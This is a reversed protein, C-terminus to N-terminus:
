DNSVSARRLMLKFIIALIGCTVAVPSLLLAAALPYLLAYGDPNLTKAYWALLGDLVLLSLCVSFVVTCIKRARMLGSRGGRIQVWRSIVLGICVVVFFSLIPHGLIYLPLKTIM